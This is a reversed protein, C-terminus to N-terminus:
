ELRDFSDPKGEKVVFPRGSRQKKRVKPKPAKKGSTKPPPPQLWPMQARSAEAELIHRGMAALPLVNASLNALEHEREAARRGYDEALRRAAAATQSMLPRTKTDLDLWTAALSSGLMYDAGFVGPIKLAEYLARVGVNLRAAAAELEAAQERLF